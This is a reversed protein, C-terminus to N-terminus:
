FIILFVNQTNVEADLYLLHKIIDVSNCQVAINLLTNKNDDTIETSIKYKEVLEQFNNFDNDKIYFIINKIPDNNYSSIINSKIENTRFIMSEKNM